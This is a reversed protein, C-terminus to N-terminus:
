VVQAFIWYTYFYNQCSSRYWFLLCIIYVIAFPTYLPLYHACHCITHVISFIIVIVFWLLELAPFWKKWFRSGNFIALYQFFFFVDDCSFQQRINILSKKKQPSGPNSSYLLLIKTIFYLNTNASNLTNKKGDYIIGCYFSVNAYQPTKLAPSSTELQIFHSNDLRNKWNLTM